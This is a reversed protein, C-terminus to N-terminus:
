VQQSQREQFCFLPCSLGEAEEQGVVKIWDEKSCGWLEDEIGLGMNQEEREGRCHKESCKSDSGMCESCANPCGCCVEIRKKKKGYAGGQECNGHVRLM